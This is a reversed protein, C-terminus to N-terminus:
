SIEFPIQLLNDAWMGVWEEGEEESLIFWVVKEDKLPLFIEQSKGVLCIYAVCM